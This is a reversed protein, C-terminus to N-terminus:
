KDELKLDIAIRKALSMNRLRSGKRARITHDETWGWRGSEELVSSEIFLDGEIDVGDIWGLSVAEEACGKENRAVRDVVRTSILM